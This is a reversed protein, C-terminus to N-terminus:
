QNHILQLELLRKTSPTSKFKDSIRYGVVWIIEEGSLLVQINEKDFRSVKSDILFDSVLKSGTMGFPVFRDGKQWRRLKLPFTIKELDFCAFEPNKNPIFSEANAFKKIALHIPKTIEKDTERITYVQSDSYNNAGKVVLFGRDILLQHSPSYFMKGSKESRIAELLSDTVSRNFGFGAFLYYFVAPSLHKVLDIKVLEKDGENKFLVKKQGFLLTQLVENDEKLLELSQILRDEFGPKLEKLVPLLNHRVKNRLYKDSANSSDSRFKLKRNEAYLEIEKRSAFLLPRIIKGRQVPIGKLGKVGSGRFLNIFFTELQDDLHHAVAIKEFGNELSLEEFRSYRLERAAEQVSCRNEEVYNLTDFSKFFGQVEYKESLFRVFKEDGDSEEGRLKFNCHALAFNYGAEKFLDLMVISDVGGSVTLLIKEKQTCLNKEKIFHKFAEIM